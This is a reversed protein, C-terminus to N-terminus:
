PCHSADGSRVGQPGNYKPCYAEPEECDQCCWEYPDVDAATHDILGDDRDPTGAGAHPPRLMNGNNDYCCQQRADGAFTFPFIVATIHEAETDRFLM